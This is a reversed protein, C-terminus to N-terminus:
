GTARVPTLAASATSLGAAGLADGIRSSARVDPAVIRSISLREAETRRRDDEAVSRVEGTLGVEGWAAVDGVPVDLASSAVAIAVPLDAAPEVVRAGGAISVYVDKGAFSLGCHQQLVALVQHVRSATLGTVSRRPQATHSGTVLAQVEVLMPRRGEVAPFVVTGPVAGDHGSLLVGSPDPLEALGNSGMEFIGVERAPGFRNKLARLFRLNCTSEGELYLVVDVMHELLKPGALTGDKTVHGVLIVATRQEKGLGILRTGCQRVQSVSGGTSGIDGAFM